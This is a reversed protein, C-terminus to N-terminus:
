SDVFGCIKIVFNNKNEKLVIYFKERTILPESIGSGPLGPLAVAGGGL